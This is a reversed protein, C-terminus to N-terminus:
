SLWERSLSEAEAVATAIPPQTADAHAVVKRCLAVFEPLLLTGKAANATATVLFINEM